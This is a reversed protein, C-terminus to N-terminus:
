LITEEGVVALIREREQRRADYQYLLRALFRGKGKRGEPAYKALIAAADRDVTVNVVVADERRGAYRQDPAILKSMGKEEEGLAALLFFPVVGYLCSATAHMLANDRAMWWGYRPCM